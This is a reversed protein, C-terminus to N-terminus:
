TFYDNPFVNAHTEAKPRGESGHCNKISVPSVTTSGREEKYMNYHQEPELKCGFRFRGSLICLRNHPKGTAVLAHKENAYEFFYDRDSLLLKKASNANRRPKRHKKLERISASLQNYDVEANMMKQRLKKLADSSFNRFPLSLLARDGRRSFFKSVDSFQNIAVTLKQSLKNKTLDDNENFCSVLCSTRVIEPVKSLLNLGDVLVIAGEKSCKTLLYWPLAALDQSLPFVSLSFELGPHQRRAKNLVGRPILGNREKKFVDAVAKNKTVLILNVVM